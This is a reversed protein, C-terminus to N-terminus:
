KLLDSSVDGGQAETYLVLCCVTSGTINIRYKRTESDEMGRGAEVLSSSVTFKGKASKLLM